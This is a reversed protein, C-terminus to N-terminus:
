MAPSAIKLGFYVTVTAALATAPSQHGLEDIIKKLFIPDATAAARGVSLFFLTGALRPGYGQFCRWLYGLNNKTRAM